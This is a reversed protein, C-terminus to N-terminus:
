NKFTVSAYFLFVYIDLIAECSRLVKAASNNFHNLNFPKCATPCLNLSTFSKENKYNTTLTCLKSKAQGYPVIYPNPQFYM